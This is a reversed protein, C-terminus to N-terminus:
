SCYAAEVKTVAQILLDVDNQTWDEHITLRFHEHDAQMANPLEPM